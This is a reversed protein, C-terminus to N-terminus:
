STASRGTFGIDASQSHGALNFRAYDPCKSWEEYGAQSNLDIAV